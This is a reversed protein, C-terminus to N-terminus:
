EKTEMKGDPEDIPTTPCPLPPCPREGLYQECEHANLTNTTVRSCAMKKLREVDLPYLNISTGNTIALHTGDSTFAVDEINREHSFRWVEKVGMTTINNVNWIRGIGEFGGVALSLFGTRNSNCDLGVIAESSVMFSEGWNSWAAPNDASADWLQMKGEESTMALVTTSMALVTRTNTDTCFTLRNVEAIDLELKKEWEGDKDYVMVASNHEPSSGYAVVLDARESPSFVIDNIPGELPITLTPTEGNTHNWVMIEGKPEFKDSFVGALRMSDPSFAVATAQDKGNHTYSSTEQGTIVDHVRVSGDFSASALFRGDPSFAVQEVVDTHSTFIHTQQFVQNPHAYPDVTWVKVMGDAGGTALHEKEGDPAPSFDISTVLLSHFVTGNWLHISGDRSVTAILQNKPSFAVGNVLDTHGALVFLSHPLATGNQAGFEARRDEIYWVQAVRDGGATALFMGNSSFAVDTIINDHAPDFFLPKGGTTTDWVGYTGDKSATALMHGDPRYAIGFVEHTHGTLTLIQTPTPVTTPNWEWVRGKGDADATAIHYDTDSVPSFTAEGSVGGSSFEQVMEGTDVDWIRVTEDESASVVYDGDPSFDVSYVVDTHGDMVHREEGTEIDWLRVTRDESEGIEGSATALLQGHPSFAVSNVEENHGKLTLHLSLIPDDAPSVKWLKATNDAGATALYQGDPSFAVAFIDHIIENEGEGMKHANEVIQLLRSEQVAVNLADKAQIDDVIDIGYLALVISLNPDIPINHLAKAALRRSESVRRQGEARIYFVVILICAIIIVIFLNQLLTRQDEAEGSRELFECDTKNLLNPKAEAFAKAEELTEGSLLMGNPKGKKEWLEAQQQFFPLNKEKWAKQSELVPAILRDHALEYWDGGRREEHRVLHANVLRRIIEVPLDEGARVQHRIGQVILKQSFWNRIRREQAFDSGAIEQITKDYYVRLSQDLSTGEPLDAATITDGQRPTRRKWLQHCVLQLHLPEISLSFKEEGTSGVRRLDELLKNAADDSFPVGKKSAPEQIAEKAREPALMELRFTNRLRTPIRLRYPDFAPLYDERLAFLTWVHPNELAESLANFFTEKGKTDTPDTTLIEEFQDFILLIFRPIEPEEPKPEEQDREPLRAELYDALSTKNLVEDSLEAPDGEQRQEELGRLVSLIYRKEDTDGPSSDKTVRINEYIRFRHGQRGRVEPLLGANILSTKGAGSLSYLMVIREAMLLYYLTRAEQARGSFLEKQGETFPQPGIYPNDPETPEAM